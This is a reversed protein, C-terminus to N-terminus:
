LFINMLAPNIGSMMSTNKETSLNPFGNTNRLNWFLIHPPVLPEGYHEMGVKKYLKGIKQFMTDRERNGSRDAEDIQMDSLIVLVMNKVESLPLKTEIIVDLILNM